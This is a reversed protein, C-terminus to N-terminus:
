LNREIAVIKVVVNVNFTYVVAWVIIRSIVEIRFRVRLAINKTEKVAAM